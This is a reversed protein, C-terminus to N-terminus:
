CGTNRQENWIKSILDYEEKTFIIRASFVAHETNIKEADIQILMTHILQRLKQNEKDLEDLINNLAFDLAVEEYDDDGKKYYCKMNKCDYKFTM